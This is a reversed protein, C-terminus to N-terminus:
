KQINKRVNQLIKKVLRIGGKGDITKQGNKSLKLRIDKHEIKIISKLIKKEINNSSWKGIYIISGMNKWAIADEIDYITESIVIGPVGLCAMEYLTQGGSTIVIDAKSLLNNMKKEDVFKYCTVNKLNIKQPSILTIKYDNNYENILKAIKISLKRIDSGGFFIFINRIKKKIIKKKTRWFPKRLSAFKHNVIEITNYNKKAFLTWDVHIVGNVVWRHYDNIYILQTSNKISILYNKKIKISDLIVFDFKKILEFTKKKYKYWNFNGIIKNQNIFKNKKNLLFSNKIKLKDFAQSMAVCRTIHGHGEQGFSTIFLCRM